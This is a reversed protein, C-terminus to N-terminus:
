SILNYPINHVCKNVTRYRIHIVRLIDREIFMTGNQREDMRWERNIGIKTKILNKIKWNGYLWWIVNRLWKKACYIQNINFSKSDIFLFNVCM